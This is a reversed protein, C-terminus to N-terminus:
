SSSQRGTVVALEGDIEYGIYNFFVLLYFRKYVSGIGIKQGNDITDFRTM